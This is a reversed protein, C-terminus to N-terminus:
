YPQTLYTLTVPAFNRTMCIGKRISSLSILQPIMDSLMSYRQSEMYGYSCMIIVGM